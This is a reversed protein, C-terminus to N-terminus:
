RTRGVLTLALVALLLQFMAFAPVIRTEPWGKNEFSHHIPTAPFIRRGTLKFSLVQIPVPVLEVILLLNLALLALPTLTPARLDRFLGLSAWGLLAGIPLSGVDGMFVRAPHANLYLFPILGAAVAFGIVGVGYQSSNSALGVLGAAYAVGIFGALGDLGDAFNYANSAFLIVFVGFGLPVFNFGITPLLAVVAVVFQMVIKQRWGLGRKGKILRPIIFDDLFGIAGFGLLLLLGSALYARDNPNGALLAAILGALLGVVTILGGMTPTGEKTRHTEPAYPDITQRSKTLLLLAYIPRAVIAAVAFAVWFVAYQSM